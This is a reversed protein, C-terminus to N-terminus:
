KTNMKVMISYMLAISLHLGHDGRENVLTITKLTPTVSYKRRVDKLFFDFKMTLDIFASNTIRKFLQM